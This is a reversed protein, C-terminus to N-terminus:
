ITGTLKLCLFIFVSIIVLSLVIGSLNAFRLAKQVRASVKAETIGAEPWPNEKGGNIARIIRPMVLETNEWYSNHDFILSDKNIVKREKMQTFRHIQAKKIIDEVIPGAPVPDRRAFIDLWYFKDELHGNYTEDGYYTIVKALRRTIQLDNYRIERVKKHKSKTSDSQSIMTFVRNIAGGVSVLTIKKSKSRGSEAIAEAINGGETLADYAVVAGMSHAVITIDKIETDGLMSLVIDELRKRANASWIEHDIYRKVDGLGSSILPDLKRIWTIIKDLPGISPIFHFLWILGLLLYMLSTLFFLMIGSIIGFKARVQIKSKRSLKVAGTIKLGRKAKEEAKQRENETPLDENAPDQLIKFFSGVQKFLNQNLGWWLVQTAKPPPFADNWYAEQCLWTAKEGYPSTIKLTVSPPNGSVVSMIQISPSIDGKPSNILTDCLAKSFDAITEGRKQDGIGHVIIVGHVGPSLSM